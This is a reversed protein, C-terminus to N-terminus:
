LDDIQEKTLGTYRMIKEIPENDAKMMKATEIKGEIRGQSEGDKFAKDIVNKLDRYSKLSDEYQQQEEASYKAIEAAEFLKDFIKGGLINPRSHLTPLKQLIYLWKDMDTELQKETKSLASNKALLSKNQMLNNKITM